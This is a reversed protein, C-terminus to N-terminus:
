ARHKEDQNDEELHHICRRWYDIGTIISLLAALWLLTEGLILFFSDTLATKGLLLSSIALMQVMTKAKALSSVILEPSHSGLHERLGSVIIERCVIVCAPILAFSSIHSFGALMILCSAILLKDAVPDLFQGFRSIQKWARALYGDLFDTLCAAMFAVTAIWQGMVSETYLAALIIPILLIRFITLLNPLNALM